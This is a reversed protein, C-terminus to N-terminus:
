SARNYENIATHVNGGIYKIDDHDTVRYLGELNLELKKHSNQGFSGAFQVWHGAVWEDLEKKTIEHRKM